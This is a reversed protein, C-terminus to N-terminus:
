NVGVLKACRLVVPGLLGSPLLPDNEDWHKWTTFTVRSPEPRDRGEMLWSPWEALYKGEVWEFDEPYQEDGILRNVWLNAVEIELKNSGSRLVESVEMRFPKNWLIGRDDGNLRVAAIVEVDGLDLWIEQDEKIFSEPVDFDISYKATGSFYQIGPDPHKHWSVLSDFKVKGPAGRDEQFEVGWPGEPHLAEPIDTITINRTKGSARHLIHTGNVWTRAKVGGGTEIGANWLSDIKNQGPGEVEIYPDPAPKGDRRFIVFVSESPMLNLPVSTHNNGVTWGPANKMTGHVADWFEPKKGKIRFEAITHINKGSQNSIFFIDADDTRRHIWTLNGAIDVAPAVTIQSLVEAPSIGSFVQGKGYQISKVKEGDCDGWVEEGIARVQKESGPFGELSPTHKPKPGLVTAGSRVLNRVKRAFVPRMFETQPLVLLRYRKGSPLVVDGDEVELNAMINTGCADYDYGANKIDPRHVGGNPAADGAYCLVDAVNEGAQLLFQSRTIYQIWARGPEWWTNNRDFHCGYQGMTMGPVVDNWPQHPYSHLIFRNIGQTWAWDGVKKLSGPHNEWRALHPAGTFAEASALTRDHVHAISAALRLSFSYGGEAWFEGTPFDTKAAVALGEFCSTYPETLFQLGKEHCLEAFYGYYNEEFLDSITRRFDWLFRETTAPDEVLRGTLALLFPTPDYGRREEFEQKMRPTWHHLGAEYSDLHITHFSQGVLPGLHDLVPQIGKQWHLDLGERRLKDIELGRGAEPSPHNTNGQATYGMRMIKWVGPPADWELVGDENVYETVNVIADAAIASGEPVTGLDPQRGARGGRQGTKPQWQHVRYSNDADKPLAFVAIDRYYGEFVEPHPLKQVVHRNGWFTMEATVLQMMGYEPTIWPGGTTAWGACNHLSMEIGLREAEAATYKVLDLWGDSMYDVPGAPINTGHSGGVNFLMVGGIGVREMAELDATIGERTINGNMWIWFTHPRAQPPPNLFGSELGSSNQEKEKTGTAAFLLTILAITVTIKKVM